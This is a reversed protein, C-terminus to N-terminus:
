ALPGLVESVARKMAEVDPRRGTWIEEQRAAQHVLMGIGGITRAGRSRAANLFRTDAPHYVIDVAVHRDSLTEDGLPSDSDTGMGISTCNIVLDCSSAVSNRDSWDVVDSLDLAAATSASIPTRNAIAVRGAGHRRMADAVARGAGGFGLVLVDRSTPDVGDHRLSDVLGDGDTSHGRTSGDARFEITNVSRLLRASDTLSDCHEVMATKHPMTVSLGVVGLTRAADIVHPAAEPPTPFAVYTWDLGLSEFGAAHLAPSLSHEVPWGIVGAVRTRGSIPRSVPSGKGQRHRHQGRAAPTDILVRSQRGRRHTRLVPLRM